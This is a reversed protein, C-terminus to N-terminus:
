KMASLTVEKVWISGGYIRSKLLKSVRNIRHSVRLKKVKVKVKDIEVTKQILL